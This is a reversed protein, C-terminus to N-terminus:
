RPEFRVRLDIPAKADRLIITEGSHELKAAPSSAVSAISRGQPHRLRLRIETPAKRTPPDLSVRMEGDAGAEIRYSM